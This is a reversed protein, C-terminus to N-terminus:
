IKIFIRNYPLFQNEEAAAGGIMKDQQKKLETTKSCCATICVQKESRNYLFAVCFVILAVLNILFLKKM